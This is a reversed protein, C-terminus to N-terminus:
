TGTCFDSRKKKEARVFSCSYGIYTAHHIVKYKAETRSRTVRVKGTSKQHRDHGNIKSSPFLYLPATSIYNHTNQKMKKHFYHHNM